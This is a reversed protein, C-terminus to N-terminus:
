ESETFGVKRLREIEVGLRQNKRRLVVLQGRQRLAVVASAIVFAIWTEFSMATSGM